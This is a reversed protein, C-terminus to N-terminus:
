PVDSNFSIKSTTSAVTTTEPTDPKTYVTTTPADTTSSPAAFLVIYLHFGIIVLHASAGIMLIM